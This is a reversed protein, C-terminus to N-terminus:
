VLINTSTEKILQLINNNQSEKKNLIEENQLHEEKKNDEKIDNKVDDDKVEEEKEKKNDQVVKNDEEEDSKENKDEKIEDKNDEKQEEKQEKQEKKKKSFGKGKFHLGRFKYHDLEVIQYYFSTPSYFLFTKSINRKKRRKVKPQNEKQIEENNVNTNQPVNEENQNFLPNTSAFNEDM